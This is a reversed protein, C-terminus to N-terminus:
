GVMERSLIRATQEPDPQNNYSFFFLVVCNPRNSVEHMKLKRQLVTNELKCECVCSFFCKHVLQQFFSRLLFYFVFYRCLALTLHFIYCEIIFTIRLFYTVSFFCVFASNDSCLLM